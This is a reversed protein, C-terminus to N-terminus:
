IEYCLFGRSLFAESNVITLFEYFSLIHFAWPDTNMVAQLEKQKGDFEPKGAQATNSTVLALWTLEPYGQTVQSLSFWLFVQNDPM